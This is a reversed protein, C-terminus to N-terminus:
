PINPPGSVTDVGIQAEDVAADHTSYSANYRGTTPWIETITTKKSKVAARKIMFQYTGAPRAGKFDVQWVGSDVPELPGTPPTNNFAFPVGPSDLTHTVLGAHGGKITYAGVSVGWGDAGALTISFAPKSPFSPFKIVYAADYSSSKATGTFFGAAANGYIALLLSNHPDRNFFDACATAGISDSFTYPDNPHFGTPGIGNGIYLPAGNHPFDNPPALGFKPFFVYNGQRGFSTTTLREYTSMIKATKNGQLINVVSSLKANDDGAVSKATTISVWASGGWQVNVIIEQFGEAYPVNAGKPIM